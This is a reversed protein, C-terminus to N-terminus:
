LRKAVLGTLGRHVDEAVHPKTMSPLNRYSEPLNKSDHGTMFAFPVRRGKLTDAVPYVTHRGINVDLLALDLEESKAAQM